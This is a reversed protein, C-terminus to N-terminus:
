WIKYYVAKTRFQELTVVQLNNCSALFMKAQSQRTIQLSKITPPVSFSSDDYQRKSYLNYITDNILKTLNLRDPVM